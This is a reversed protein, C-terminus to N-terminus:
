VGDPVEKYLLHRAFEKTFVMAKPGGECFVSEKMKTAAQIQAASDLRGLIRRLGSVEVVVVRKEIVGEASM